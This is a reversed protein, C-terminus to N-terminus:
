RTGLKTRQRPGHNLYKSCIFSMWMRAHTGTTQTRSSTIVSPLPPPTGVMDQDKIIAEVAADKMWQVGGALLTDMPMDRMTDLAYRKISDVKNGSGERYSLEDFIACALVSRKNILKRAARYTGTGIAGFRYVLALHDLQALQRALEENPRETDFDPPLEGSFCHHIAAKIVSSHCFDIFLTASEEIYQQCQRGKFFIEELVPSYCALVFKSTEVPVGDSGIITLDCMHSKMMGVLLAANHNYVEHSVDPKESEIRAALYATINTADDQRNRASGNRLFSNRKRRTLDKKLPIEEDISSTDSGPGKHHRERKEKHNKYAKSMLPFGKKGKSRTSRPIPCFLLSPATRALTEEVLESAESADISMMEGGSDRRGGRGTLSNRLHRRAAGSMTSSNRRDSGDGTSSTALGGFLASNARESSRASTTTITTRM